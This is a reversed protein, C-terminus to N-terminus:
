VYGISDIRRIGVDHVFNWFEMEYKTKNYILFDGCLDHYYRQLKICSNELSNIITKVEGYADKNGLGKLIHNQHTKIKSFLSKVIVSTMEEYNKKEISFVMHFTKNYYVDSVVLKNLARLHRYVPKNVKQTVLVYLRDLNKHIRNGQKKGFIREFETKVLKIYRKQYKQM